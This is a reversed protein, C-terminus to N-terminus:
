VVRLNPLVACSIDIADGQSVAEYRRLNPLVSEVLITFIMSFRLKRWIRWMLCFGLSVWRKQPKESALAIFNPKVPFYIAQSDKTFDRTTDTNNTMQKEREVWGVSSYVERGSENQM